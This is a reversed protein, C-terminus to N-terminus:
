ASPRLGTCHAFTVRTLGTTTISPRGHGAMSVGQNTKWSSRISKLRNLLKALQRGRHEDREAAGNQQEHLRHEFVAPQRV